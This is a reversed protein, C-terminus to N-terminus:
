PSRGPSCLGDRGGPEKIVDAKDPTDTEHLAKTQCSTRIGSGRSPALKRKHLTPQKQLGSSGAQELPLSQLDVSIEMDCSGVDTVQRLCPLSQQIKRPHHCVLLDIPQLLNNTLEMFEVSEDFSLDEFGDDGELDGEQEEYRLGDPTDPDTAFDEEFAGNTKFYLYEVGILEGTHRGPRTYDHVM